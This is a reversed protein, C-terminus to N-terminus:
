GRGSRRYNSQSNQGSSGSSSYSSGGDIRAGYSSSSSSRNDSRNEDRRDRDRGSDRSYPSYNRSYNNSSSSDNGSSSAFSKRFDSQQKAPKQSGKNKNINIFAGFGKDCYSTYFSILRTFCGRQNSTKVEMSGVFHIKSLIKFKLKELELVTDPSLAGAAVSLNALHVYSEVIDTGDVCAKKAQEDICGVRSADMFALACTRAVHVPWLKSDKDGAEVVEAFAPTGTSMSRPVGNLGISTSFEAGVSGAFPNSAAVGPASSPPINPGGYLAACQALFDSRARTGPHPPPRGNPFVNPDVPSPIGSNLLPNAPLSSNAGDLLASSFVGAGPLGGAGAGGPLSSPPSFASFVLKAVEFLVDKTPVRQPDPDHKSCLREAFRQAATCCVKCFLFNDVIDCGAQGNSICSDSACSM